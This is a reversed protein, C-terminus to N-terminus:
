LKLNKFKRKLFNKLLNLSCIFAFLRYIIGIIRNKKNLYFNSYAILISAFYFNRSKLYDIYKKRLKLSYILPINGAKDSGKTKHMGILPKNVSIFYTGKFAARIAFDLEASRRFSEDFNGIEEFVSKRAMLTCSGFMGWTKKDDVPFGFLYDAVEEGFPEPPKRGIAYAVHDYVSKGPKFVNRNSYCLTLPYSHNNEFELIREVQLSIRNSVNDDDDDFIAIYEGKAQKIAKNLSAPYGLNSNNRLLSIRSERSAIERLINFSLDKSYDDIVIIETNSWDQELASNIARKITDQSNFCTIIISVLKM